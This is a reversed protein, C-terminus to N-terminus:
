PSAGQFRFCALRQHLICFVQHIRHQASSIIITNMPNLFFTIPIYIYSHVNILIWQEDHIEISCLFITDVCSPPEAQLIIQLM